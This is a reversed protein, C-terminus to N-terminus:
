AQSVFDILLFRVKYIMNALLCEVEDDEMLEKNGMSIAVGFEAVPIRTRRLPTTNADKAEM